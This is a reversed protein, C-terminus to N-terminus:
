HNVDGSWKFELIQFGPTLTLGRISITASLQTTNDSPPALKTLSATSGMSRHRM